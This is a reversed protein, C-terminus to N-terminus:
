LVPGNPSFLSLIGAQLQNAQALVATGAQLLIQDRTFAAAEQPIDADVINSNARQSNIQQQGALSQASTLSNQLAGLNTQASSVQGIASQIVAVAAAAGSQTTFDLADIGLSSTTQADIQLGVTAGSSATIQFQLAANQVVTISDGTGIAGPNTVRFTIGSVAATGEFQDTNLGTLAVTQGGFTVQANNPNTGTSTGGGNPVLGLAAGTSGFDADSGNTVIRAPGTPNTIANAGAGAVGFNNSTLLYNGGNISITVGVNSNNVQQMFNSVTEGAFTTFTQSTGSPGAITISGGGTFTASSQANGTITSQTASTAATLSYTGAPTVAAQVRINTIDAGGGSVQAGLAGNLLSLANYQTQQAVRNVDQLLGQVEIQINQRDSSALTGNSGQIALQNLRQLDAMTSNLGSQAAQLLSVADQANRQAQDFGNIQAILKQSIGLGASDDAASNVRLGSSLRQVAQFFGQSTLELSHAAQLGLTNSNISIPM